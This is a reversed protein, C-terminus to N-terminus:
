RAIAHRLHAITRRMPLLEIQVGCHGPSGKFTVLYPLHLVILAVPAELDQVGIAAAALCAADRFGAIYLQHGSSGFVPVNEELIDDLWIDDGAPLRRESWGRDQLEGGGRQQQGHEQPKKESAHLQFFALVIEKQKNANKLVELLENLGQDSEYKSHLKVNKYKSLFIRRYM